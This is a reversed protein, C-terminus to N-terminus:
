SSMAEGGISVLMLIILMSTLTQIMSLLLVM